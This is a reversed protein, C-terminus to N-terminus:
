VGRSNPEGKISMKQFFQKLLIFKHNTQWIQLTHILFISLNPTGGKQIYRPDRVIPIRGQINNLHQRSIM